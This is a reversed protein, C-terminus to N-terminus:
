PGPGRREREESVQLEAGGPGVPQLTLKLHHTRGSSHEGSGGLSILWWKIGANAGVKNEVQLQLDLEIPGLQVFMSPPRTGFPDAEPERGYDLRKRKVKGGLIDCYFHEARDLDQIATVYHDIQRAFCQPM